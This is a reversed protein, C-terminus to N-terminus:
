RRPEGHGAHAHSGRYDRQPSQRTLSDHRLGPQRFQQQTGRQRRGGGGRHGGELGSGRSAGTSRASFSEVVPRGLSLNLVAIKHVNRVRLDIAWNIAAIVSSDTGAGSADLAQLNVIKVAPALGRYTRLFSSGKSQSGNGALVGAVITGHGYDDKTPKSKDGVFSESYVIRDALDKHKDIGSDAIAVTVGEGSLGYKIAVLAGASPLTVDMAGRVARDRSVYAVDPDAALSAAATGDLQVSLTRIHEFFDKIKAGKGQLRAKAAGGCGVSVARSCPRKGQRGQSGAFNPRRKYAHRVAHSGHPGPVFGCDDGGPPARCGGDAADQIKM